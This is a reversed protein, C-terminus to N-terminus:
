RRFTMCLNTSISYVFFFFLFVLQNRTDYESQEFSHFSGVQPSILSTSSALSTVSGGFDRMGSGMLSSPYGPFGGATYGGPFSSEDSTSSDVSSVRAHEVLSMVRSRGGGGGGGGDSPSSSSSSMVQMMMLSSMQAMSGGHAGGGAGMLLLEQSSSSRSGLSEAEGNEEEEEDGDEAEEAEVDTADGDSPVFFDYGMGGGITFSTQTDGSVSSVDSVDGSESNVSVQSSVPRM